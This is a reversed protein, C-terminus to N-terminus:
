TTRRVAMTTRTDRSRSRSRPKQKLIDAVADIIPFSEKRIKDKDFEFHIQQLIKIETDTIIALAPKTPCGPKDGGPPGAENPCMDDNDLV